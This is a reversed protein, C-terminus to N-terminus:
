SFQLWSHCMIRNYYQAYVMITWFPKHSLVSTFVKLFDEWITYEYNTYITLITNMILFSSKKHLKCLTTECFNQVLLLTNYMVHLTGQRQHISPHSIRSSSSFRNGVNLLILMFKKWGLADVKGIDQARCPADAWPSAFTSCLSRSFLGLM